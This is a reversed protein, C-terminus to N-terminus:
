EKSNEELLTEVEEPTQFLTRSNPGPGRSHPRAVEMIAEKVLNKVHDDDAADMSESSLIQSSSNMSVKWLGWSIGTGLLMSAFVAGAVWGKWGAIQLKIAEVGKQNERAKKMVDEALRDLKSHAPCRTPISIEDFESVDCKPPPKTGSRM